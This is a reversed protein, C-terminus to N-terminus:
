IVRDLFDIYKRTIETLEPEILDLVFGDKIEGVAEVTELEFNHAQKEVNYEAGIVIMSGLIYTFMLTLMFMTGGIIERKM